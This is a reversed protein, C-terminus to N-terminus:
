YNNHHKQCYLSWHWQQITTAATHIIIALLIKWPDKSGLLEDVPSSSKMHCSDTCLVADLALWFLWQFLLWSCVVGIRVIWFIHFSHPFQLDMYMCVCFHVYIHFTLWKHHSSVKQFHRAIVIQELIIEIQDTTMLTTLKTGRWLVLSCVVFIWFFIFYFWISYFLIYYFLILYFIVTSNYLSTHTHTHTHMYPVVIM